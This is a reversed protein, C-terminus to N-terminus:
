LNSRREKRNHWKSEFFLEIANQNAIEALEEIKINLYEAVAEAIIPINGPDNRKGRKGEPPLYPCDTELLLNQVGVKKAIDRLDYNRKYTFTGNIGIYNGLDLAAKADNYNGAFCHFVGRKNKGEFKWLKKIENITDKYADGIKADKPNRIHFVAPMNLDNSINIMKELLAFQEGKKEPEWYYDLGIEGLAVSFPKKLYERLKKLDNETETGAYEPHIGFVPFVSNKYESCLKEAKEWDKADCSIEIFKNVGFGMANAIVEGRDNDFAEDCLHAHTDTFNM